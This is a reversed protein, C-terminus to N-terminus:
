LFLYKRVKINQWLFNSYLLPKSVPKQKGPTNKLFLSFLTIAIVEKDLDVKRDKEKLKHM